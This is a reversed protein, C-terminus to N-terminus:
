NSKVKVVEQNNINENKILNFKQKIIERLREIEKKM